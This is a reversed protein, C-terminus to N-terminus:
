PPHMKKCTLYGQVRGNFIELPPDCGPSYANRIITKAYGGEFVIWTPLSLVPKRKVLCLPTCSGRPVKNRPPLSPSLSLSRADQPPCAETLSLSHDLNAETCAAGLRDERSLSLEKNVVQQDSDVSDDLHDSYVPRAGHSNANGKRSLRKDEKWRSLVEQLM